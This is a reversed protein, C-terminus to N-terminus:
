QQAETGTGGPKATLLGGMIHIVGNDATIDSELIEIGNVLAGDKASVVDLKAGELTELEEQDVLQVLPVKGAVIHQKLIATLQDKDASELQEKPTKAAGQPGPDGLDLTKFAADTPAFVTYPGKGKLTETLGSVELATAFSDIEFQGSQSVEEATAVLDAAAGPLSILCFSGALFAATTVRRHKTMIGRGSGRMNPHDFAHRVCLHHGEIGILSCIM